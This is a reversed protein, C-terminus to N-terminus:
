FGIALGDKRNDSGAIYGNDTKLILQAGGFNSEDLNTVILHGRKELEKIVIDDLGPELALKQDDTIFWRPADSAEQPNQGYNFIRIIMQVHGQPQMPGGMVGFSLVPQGHSTAFGPIITHFPRKGGDVQNPHGKELSFGAGRNQMSIGTGPIVVGSGFGMYNSQIFSVMMGGADATSLYVTGDGRSSSIDYNGIKALDIKGSMDKLFEASLYEQPDNRMYDPDAIISNAVEFGIKMAEVQLHISDASNIEYQAIDFSDLIGLAVLAALGQSNPPIEWIDYGCYTQSIPKVWIPSHSEFDDMTLTGGNKSSEVVIKNALKGRYFSEGKTYAIEELTFAQAPCRFLEGTAPPRGDILFTEKFCDFASFRRAAREWLDSTKPTVTYGDRAHKIAADFLKEFPLRGFKKSLEVWVSVAGPVTITDWGNNPMENYQSFREYRWAKPSKGSGNLGHLQKGDWVIAFADSGIGNNTPEVVTLTIASALAADVANGGNKLVEIGAEVALPQSTAVINEATVSKGNDGHRVNNDKM